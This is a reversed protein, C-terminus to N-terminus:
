EHRGKYRDLIYGCSSQGPKTEFREGARGSSIWWQVAELLEAGQRQREPTLGQPDAMISKLDELLMRDAEAALKNFASSDRSVTMAYTRKKDFEKAKDTLRRRMAKEEESEVSWELGDREADEKNSYTRIWGCSKCKFTVWVRGRSFKQVSDTEPNHSKCSELAKRNREASIAASVAIGLLSM